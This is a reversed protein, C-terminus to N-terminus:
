GSVEGGERGRQLHEHAGAGFIGQVGKIKEAGGNIRNPRVETRRVCHDHVNQASTIQFAALYALDLLPVVKKEDRGAEKKPEM